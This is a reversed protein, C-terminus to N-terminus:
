FSGNQLRDNMADNELTNGSLLADLESTTGAQNLFDFGYSFGEITNGQITWDSSYQMFIGAVGAGQSALTDTLVNGTVTMSESLSTASAGSLSVGYAESPISGSQFTVTNDTVSSSSVGVLGIGTSMVQTSAAAATIQNKTIVVGTPIDGTGGCGSASCGFIGTGTNTITNGEITTGSADNRVGWLGGGFMDGPIMTGDITNNSVTCSAGATPEYQLCISEASFGRISNHDVLCGIARGYVFGDGCSKSVTAALSTLAGCGNYRNDTIQVGVSTGDTPSNDFMWIGVNPETNISTGSDRGQQLVFDNDNVTVGTVGTTVIMRSFNEFTNDQITWGQIGNGETGELFLGVTTTQTVGHTNQFVLGEIRSNQWFGVAHIVDEGVQSTTLTAHDGVLNLTFPTGYSTEVLQDGPQTSSALLYTGPDFYVSGNVARAADMAAQIAPRDDHVGDGTAGYATVRLYGPEFPFGAQADSADSPADNGGDRGADDGWEGADHAPADLAGSDHPTADPAGTEPRATADPEGSERAESADHEGGDPRAHADRAGSERRATSAADVVGADPVSRGPAPSSGCGLLLWTAL